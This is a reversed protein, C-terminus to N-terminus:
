VLYTVPIQYDPFEVMANERGNRLLVSISYSNPSFLYSEIKKILTDTFFYSIISM